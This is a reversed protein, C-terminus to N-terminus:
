DRVAFKVGVIGFKSFGLLSRFLLEKGIIKENKENNKNSEYM